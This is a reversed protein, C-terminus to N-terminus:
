SASAFAAVFAGAVAAVVAATAVHVQFSGTETSPEIREM